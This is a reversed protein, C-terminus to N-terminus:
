SNRARVYNMALPHLDQRSGNRDHYYRFSSSPGRLAGDLTAQYANSIAYPEGNSDIMEWMDQQKPESNTRVLRGYRERLVPPALPEAPYVRQDSDNRVLSPIKRSLGYGIPAGDPSTLSLSVETQVHSTPFTVSPLHQASTNANGIIQM